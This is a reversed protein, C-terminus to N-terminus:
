VCAVFGGMGRYATYPISRSDEELSSCLGLWGSTSCDMGWRGQYLSVSGVTIDQDDNTIGTFTIQSNQKAFFLLPLIGELFWGVVGRLALGTCMM